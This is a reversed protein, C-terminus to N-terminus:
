CPNNPCFNWYFSACDHGDIHEKGGNYMVKQLYFSIRSAPHSIKLYSFNAGGLGM